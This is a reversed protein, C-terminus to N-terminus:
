FNIKKTEQTKFQCQMKDDDFTGFFVYVRERCLESDVMLWM